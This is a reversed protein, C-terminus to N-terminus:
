MGQWRKFIENEIQLMDLVKGVLHNVIDDITKPGHYFAPMAPMVIAGARAVKLMNELHILTLPTERPVLILKRSEKLTVDAARVLLNDSIGSAIAGLTHMSCPIIVMSDFKFSGSSISAAIDGFRYSKTALKEVQKPSYDTEAKITINAAPSVILHIEIDQKQLFELLKIGYIM